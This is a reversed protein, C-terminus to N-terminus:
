YDFKKFIKIIDKSHEYHMGSPTAIIVLNIEKHRILMERYNLYGDVNFKKSFKKLKSKNLDSIASLSFRKESIICKIHHLSIRGIGIIGVNIKKM